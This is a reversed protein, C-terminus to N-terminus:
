GTSNLRSQSVLMQDQLDSLSQAPDLCSLGACVLGVGVSPYESHQDQESGAFMSSPWFGQMLDKLTEPSAAVKQFNLYWDLATFLTPCARPQQHMLQAFSQLGVTAQQLYQQDGTLAALRVLNCLAVGNAAPTSQDQFPKEQILLEQQQESGNNIYGGAEPDWFIASMNAQWAVAQELWYSAAESGQALMVSQHLDLLAKILLAYDESLAAQQPQGNYNLRLLQGQIVQAELIYNAAKIAQDLASDVGFVQYARALGSIVLCNWAVILKTDTVPPIRGPWQQSLAEHQSCPTHFTGEAQAQGYRIQFLKQELLEELQASLAGARNRRLVTFGPRDQFNGEAPLDFAEVLLQLEEQSLVHQLQSWGWVYFEGEEPEPNAASVYSDADQAAYFYGQPATMERQLWSVTLRVSREIALDQIGFAWLNALFELIQGNDYLMKEFHPVTWSPDVTYRHFGGGVHDFIGGLVLNLGREYVKAKAESADIHEDETLRAARLVLQTYPMMPFQNVSEQSLVELSEQMGTLLLAGSLDSISGKEAEVVLLEMFQAKFSMLKEKQTDFYQRVQQLVRLFAPRGFKAELPFYTGAYFPILEDPTLFLNLPWGGQGLMLRASQMYISDLDPREERDVKIPLFHHNLFAAVELDSFAEREMVTCWHCSSYGISLFIPLQEQKAKALAQPCWPWWAIPNDAHKRLYLSDSAALRNPM